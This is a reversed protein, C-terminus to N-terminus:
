DVSYYFYRFRNKFIELCFYTWHSCLVAVLQGTALLAQVLQDAVVVAADRGGVGGGDVSVDVIEVEHHGCGGTSTINM